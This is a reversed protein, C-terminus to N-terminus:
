ISVVKGNGYVFVIIARPLCCWRHSALLLPPPSAPPPPPAISYYAGPSRGKRLARSNAGRRAAGRRCPHRRSRQLSSAAAGARSLGRSANAICGNISYEKGERRESRGEHNALPRGSATVDREAHLESSSRRLIAVYM